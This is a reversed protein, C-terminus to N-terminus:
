RRIWRAVLYGGLAAIIDLVSDLLLEPPYCLGLPVLLLQEVIEWVIVGLITFRAPLLILGAVVGVLFHYITYDNFVPKFIGYGDIRFGLIALIVFLGLFVKLSRIIRPNM